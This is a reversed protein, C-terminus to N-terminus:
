FGYHLKLEKKLAIKENSNYGSPIDINFFNGEINDFKVMAYVTRNFNALSPIFKIYKRVSDKEVIIAGQNNLTQILSNFTTM